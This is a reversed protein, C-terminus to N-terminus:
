IFYFNTVSRILLIHKLILNNDKTTNLHTFKYFKLTRSIYNIFKIDTNIHMCNQVEGITYLYFHEQFLENATLKPKLINPNKKM